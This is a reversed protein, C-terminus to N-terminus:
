AQGGDKVLVVSFYGTKEEMGAFRQYVRENEMGCNEVLSARDLEGRRRLAEQLEGISKGAKMLVKNARVDLSEELHEYSAPVVLLRDSGECLSTNLRAAVACFSPVGPILRATYGRELVKKHTYMYTSYVTPDGLTIFAVNKGQDLLACLRDANAQYSEELRVPDRTMPAACNVREKGEIYDKVITLATQEGAGKDPVAIIDAEKLIRVAKLTLLEPDGPGVGVGYLIGKNM